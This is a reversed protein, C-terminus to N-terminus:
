VDTYDLLFRPILSGNQELFRYLAPAWRRDEDQNPSFFAVSHGKNGVRGTRGVRHVYQDEPGFLDFLVVHEVEPYNMGRAMLDSAVMVDYVGTQFKTRADKRQEMTRDANINISAYGKNCLHASLVETHRKHKVFVLTKEVRKRSVAPSAYVSSGIGLPLAWEELLELLKATKGAHGGDVLVVEQRITPAIHNLQGVSVFFYGPKLYDRAALDRVVDDYTASFMLTRHERPLARKFAILRALNAPNDTRLLRDAEDLVFFMVNHLQIWQREAIDILRGLSTVLIDCGQDLIRRSENMELAGFSFAVKVDLDHVLARARDKIQDTLERTVALVIAYPADRNLPPPRTRKGAADRMAQRDKLRQIADIIPMLFAEMKGSGTEAHAMLDARKCMIFPMVVKQIATPKFLGLKEANKMLAHPYHCGQRGDGFDEARPLDEGNGGEIRTDGDRKDGVTHEFFEGAEIRHKKDYLEFEDTPEPVFKSRAARRNAPAGAQQFGGSSSGRRDGSSVSGENGWAGGSPGDDSRNGPRTKRNGKQIAHAVYIPVYVYGVDTRVMSSVWQFQSHVRFTGTSM